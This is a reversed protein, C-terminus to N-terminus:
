EPLCVGEAPAAPHHAAVEVAAGEVIGQVRGSADAQRLLQDLMSAQPLAGAHDDARVVPELDPVGLAPGGVLLLHVRLDRVDGLVEGIVLSSASIPVAVCRITPDAARLAFRVYTGVSCSGTRAVSSISMRSGRGPSVKTSQVKPPPPWARSIASRIPGSPSSIAASRSGAASSRQLSSAGSIGERPRKRRASKTAARSPRRPSPTRGSPITKSRPM